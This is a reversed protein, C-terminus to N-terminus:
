KSVVPDPADKQKCMIWPVGIDLAVAMNAAWQVYNDGKEEYALQIHNYENEIQALIIPGGQPAFLKEDKMM